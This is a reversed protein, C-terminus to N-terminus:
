FDQGTRYDKPWYNPCYPSVDEGTEFDPPLQLVCDAVDMMSKKSLQFLPMLRFPQECIHSMEDLAIMAYAVATSIIVTGVGGVINAAQLAYPLMSLYFILLRGTLATYLPPIPSALIKETVMICRNLYQTCHDLAIEEATSLQHNKGLHFFAQRLRSVVAMPAKRQRIIYDADVKTPLMTRIIDEDTGNVAPGRLFGKLLWGFLAVHRILKLGLQHNRPYITFTILNAMERSYLVMEGIAKRGDNLRSLGQNSRLTLLFAVFSSMLSLSSLPIVVKSIFSETMFRKWVLVALSSWLVHISLMPLVRQLLRSQFFGFLWHAYRKRSSHLDWDHVTWTTTMSPYGIRRQRLFPPPLTTDRNGPRLENCVKTVDAMFKELSDEGNSKVTSLKVTGVEVTTSNV